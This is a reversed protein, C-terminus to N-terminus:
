ITNEVVQDITVSGSWKTLEAGESDIQVFTHQLTVGYKKRLEQSDDFDVLVITVDDPIESLSAEFNDRAVKCTSCWTANFFLVVKSDNYLDGSTAYTEYVIYNASIAAAGESETAEESTAPSEAKPEEVPAPTMSCSSLLLAIATVSLLTLMSKKM